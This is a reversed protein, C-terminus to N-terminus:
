LVRASLVKSEGFVWRSEWIFLRGRVNKWCWREWLVAEGVADGRWVIEVGCLMPAPM